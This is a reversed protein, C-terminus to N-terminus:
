KLLGQAQKVRLVRTASADVRARFAADTQARALVARYMAPVVLPDVTLVLDGGADIFRLARQGPSWAAVQRAGGLDDSIVVGDFGLDGRLMQGIVIPSFAAPRGPDIRSYYATSMMVFPVGAKIARAFPELYADDRTTVRDTVGSTVDPNGTVRGLGPFHKATTAVGGDAMGQTFAMVQAAVDDPRLGLERAFRGIPRNGRAAALSPVTDAVPALNVDIGAAHLQRGWRAAGSRLTAPSWGGQTRGSPMVSFGKGRLVQVAGGEQDTAVLLPVGATAQRTARSRMGAVVKATAAVGASSRGTLMVNGVHYRTVATRTAAGVGTAPGGVMFLQGVRQDLTMAMLARTVTDESTRTTETSPSTPSASMPRSVVPSPAAGTSPATSCAALVLSALLGGVLRRGTLM